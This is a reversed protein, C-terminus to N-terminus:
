QLVQDFRSVPIGILRAASQLGIRGEHAATIVTRITNEGLRFKDMVAPPPAGGGERESQKDKRDQWQAQYAALLSGHRDKSIFDLDLLRRAIVARSVKFHKALREVARAIDRESVDWRERLDNEPVLFEAAVMNCLKERSHGGGIGRLANFSSIAKSGLWLHALEHVLTFVKAADVDNPNVVVMPALEDAIAIGRFVDSPIRSQHYGLDGVLIVYIGVGQAASRLHKLLTMEGRIGVQDEISVKLVGRISGVFDRVPTSESLSGIFPLRQSGTEKHLACLGQHLVVLKRRLASFEPTDAPHGESGLTRYDAMAVMKKPPEPLFFTFVPRKYANAIKELQPFSPADSGEEWAALREEATLEPVDKKKRPPGIGARTIADTLTYGAEDRAWRLIEPNVPVTQQM